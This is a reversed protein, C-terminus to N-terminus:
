NNEAGELIWQLMLDYNQYDITGLLNGYGSIVGAAHYGINSSSPKELILSELPEDLNVRERIRDYTYTPDVSTPINLDLMHIDDNSSYLFPTAVKYQMSQHCNVCEGLPGTYKTTAPDLLPLIQNAFSVSTVGTAATYTISATNSALVKGAGDSKNVTLTAIYDGAVDPTFTPTATDAGTLKIDTSGAPPMITWHYTSAFVSARGNLTKAVGVPITQIGQGTDARPPTGANAIPRGPQLVDSTGPQYHQFGTGGSVNNLSQALIDAQGSEWFHNYTRLALPMVGKDYILTEIDDQYGIFDSYSGLTISRQLHCARCTPKVVNLYLNEKSGWGRPVFQGDFTSSASDIGGTSLYWGKIVEEKATDSAPTYSSHTMSLVTRNFSKFKNEQNARSYQADTTSYKFLDLDWALFGAGTDGHDPYVGNVLSKPAGGHCANCVGPQYKLGRGDLDAAIIRDGATVGNLNVNQAALNDITKQGIFTYFTTIKRDGKGILYIVPLVDARIEVRVHSYKNLVLPFRPNAPSYPNDGESMYWSGSLPTQAVGDITVNITFHGTEKHSFFDTAAVLMYEGPALDEEDIYSKNIRNDYDYMLLKGTNDLLYVIRPYKLLDDLRISVPTDNSAVQFTYKPNAASQPDPGGSSVWAGNVSLLSIGANTDMVNLKFNGALGAKQTAAVVTYTGVPLTTLIEAYKDYLGTSGRNYAVVHRYVGAPGLLYLEEGIISPADLGITVRQTTGPAGVVDFDFRPNGDRFPGPGGSNTWSQPPIIGTFPITNGVADKVTLSFDGSTGLPAAAVATYSGPPLDLKLVEHASNNPDSYFGAGFRVTTTPAVQVGASDLLYMNSRIDSSFTFSVNQATAVTVPIVPNAPDTVNSTFAKSTWSGTFTQPSGGAYTITVSYNGLESDIVRKLILNYTGAALSLTYTGGWFHPDRNGDSQAILIQNQQAATEDVAPQTYEMAVTAMLNAPDSSAADSINAYNEVYSAVNGNADTRVYMRRAFGLDADNLYVAPVDGEGGTGFGNAASWKAFTDKANTPDIAKYYAMATAAAPDTNALNPDGIPNTGPAAYIYEYKPTTHNLFGLFNNGDEPPLTVALQNSHASRGIAVFASVRYEYSGGTQVKTGAGVATDQDTNVFSTTNAPLMAIDQWPGLVGNQKEAREVVFGDEDPSNDTWALPVSTRTAVDSLNLNTPAATTVACKVSVDVNAAAIKGTGDSVTCFEGSPQTKVTVNYDAGDALATAFTFNFDKTLTLTDDNNQLEVTGDLGIITGGVTYLASGAQCNVAINNVAKGKIVGSGNSVICNQGSPQTKVIVDYKAGDALATGFFFTTDSPIILTDSGNNQLELTGNLGSVVGGVSYLTPDKKPTDNQGNNNNSGGCGFFLIAIGMLFSFRVFCSNNM